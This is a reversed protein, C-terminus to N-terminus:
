QDRGGLSRRASIADGIVQVSLLLMVLALGPMIAIWWAGSLQTQGEAVMSGWDATPPVVGMGLYSLAAEVLVATAVNATATVALLPVVGPILHRITIGVPGVGALKAAEIYGNGRVTQVYSRVVRYHLPWSELAIILVVLSLHKGLMALVLLALVLGPISMQIDAIRGIVTDLWGERWGSLIGLPIGIALALLVAFAGVLLPPQGGHIIRSLIDRGLFDTGLPHQASQFPPQMINMLDQALPDYPAVVSAFMAALLLAAVVGLALMQAPTLGSSRQQTRFGASM